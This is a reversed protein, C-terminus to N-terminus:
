AVPEQGLYEVFGDAGLRYLEWKVRELKGGVIGDVWVLDHLWIAMGLRVFEAQEAISLPRGAARAFDAPDPLKNGKSTNGGRTQKPNINEAVELGMILCGPALPWGIHVIHDRCEHRLKRLRRKAENAAPDSVACRAPPIFAKYGSGGGPMKGTRDFGMTKHKLNVKATSSDDHLGLDRRKKATSRMNLNFRHRVCEGTSTYRPSDPHEPCRKAPDYYYTVPQGLLDLRARAADRSQPMEALQQRTFKPPQKPWKPERPKSM